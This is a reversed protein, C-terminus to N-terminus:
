DAPKFSITRSLATSGREDAPQGGGVTLIIDSGNAPVFVGADDYYGLQDPAITLNVQRSEGPALEVAEIAVLEVKPVSRNPRSQPQLYAQVIEKGARAGSNTLTVSVNLPKTADPSAEVSLDSYGFTTYSLGHGFRYLPEGSYYKYTRNDMSYDNFAPLGDLSKYFTVPLRGSPSYEGWLLDAIANGTHEGPYFAQVIAPLNEAEWNLAMASGSFNVFIVPKGTAQLAKVLDEQVLPLKLNTRDGGSFGDIHIDMEEGELSADIGGFFLIVDSNVAAEMAEGGLDRSTDVWKLRSEPEISNRHWYTDSVFDVSVAYKQGAKMQYITNDALSGNISPTTWRTGKFQYAGDKSPVIYGTWNVSFTDNLTGDVPSTKWYFDIAEDTRMVVPEGELKPNDFYHATLGPELTGDGADHFLNEAGIVEFNTYVGEALMSGPTYTVNDAGAKAIIGDLATVPQTPIGYYNGVLTLWNDANPGIVAVKTDPKLPLIGDNKLLVLSQRAAEESLAIHADSAVNAFPISAYPVTTPDDFLGLRFRAEFLRVVAVDVEAETVLGQAIAEPLADFKNGEGDGCNVDTGAKLAAAAAEARTKVYAHSTPYYFDGIAGCDSVVYGDFKFEGRLLTKLLKDSGCAPKGEFANYACMVSAVNTEDLAMKFASVYTERLDAESVTYDDSHRSSEPGSHVAYHKITAVTKLYKEDDGQLGNVFNVAMRGTLFPDEGYTEQGRGWRPDRFININPSWFTLGTYMEQVGAHDFYHHKARGEDSIVTAVRHMLDEDWTAAMGIAQPFVTAEGARAVGHLAENWWYYAPVGLREIAPTKDYMQASKEELTMRSVLDVARAHPSLSPDQFPFEYAKAAVAADLTRESPSTTETACGSLLGASIAGVASFTKLNRIFGSM